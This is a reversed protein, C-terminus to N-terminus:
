QSLSRSKPFYLPAPSSITTLLDHCILCILCAYVCLYLCVGMYAHQCVCICVCKPVCAGLLSLLTNWRDILILQTLGKNQPSCSSSESLICVKFLGERMMVGSSGTVSTEIWDTPAMSIILLLTCLFCCVAAGIQFESFKYRIPGLTYPRVYANQISM